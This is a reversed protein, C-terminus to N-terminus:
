AVEVFNKAHVFNRARSKGRKHSVLRLNERRLNLPNGDVYRVIEGANADMLVRAVLVRHSPTDSASATVYYGNGGVRYSSWNPSLGLKVLFDYDDKWIEVYRPPSFKNHRGLPVRALLRGGVDVLEIPRAKM